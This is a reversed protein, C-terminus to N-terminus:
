WTLREERSKRNHCSECLGQHNSHDWFLDYNGRHPQIHDVAFTVTLRGERQCEECLGHNRGCVSCQFQRLFWARYKRWRTDYGRQAPTGRQKDYMRHHDPCPQTKGCRCVRRPAYPM